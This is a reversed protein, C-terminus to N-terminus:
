AATKPPQFIADLSLSRYSSIYEPPSINFTYATIPTHFTVAEEKHFFSIAINSLHDKAAEKKENEEAQQVKKMLYCKGNCHMWPKNKNVCLTKAIYDQNAEFGAYVLLRSFSSGILAILLIFAFLRKM